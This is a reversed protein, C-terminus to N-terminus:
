AELTHAVSALQALKDVLNSQDAALLLDLLHQSDEQAEEQCDARLRLLFLDLAVM